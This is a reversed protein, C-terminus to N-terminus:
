KVIKCPVRINPCSVLVECSAKAFNRAMKGKLERERTDKDTLDVFRCDNRMAQTVRIVAIRGDPDFKEKYHEAVELVTTTSIFQSKYNKRSGCGIHSQVSKEATRSKATLGDKCNEKSRLLRYLVERDWVGCPIGPGKRKFRRSFSCRRHLCRTKGARPWYRRRTKHLGANCPVADFQSKCPKLCGLSGCCAKTDDDCCVGEKITVQCCPESRPCRKASCSQGRM